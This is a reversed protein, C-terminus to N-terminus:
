SIQSKRRALLGFGGLGLMMLPLSAPLPVTAVRDYGIASELVEYYDAYVDPTAGCCFDWGIYFLDGAGFSSRFVQAGTDGEYFVSSGEALRDTTAYVSSAFRLEETDDAFSTGQVATTQTWSTPTTPATFSIATDFIDNYFDTTATTDDGLLIIRGGKNLFEQVDATNSGAVAQQEVIITDGAAIAGEWGRPQHKFVNTTYGLEILGGSRHETIDHHGNIVSVTLASAM